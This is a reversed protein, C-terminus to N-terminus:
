VIRIARDEPRKSYRKWWSAVLSLQADRLTSREPDADIRRACVSRSAELVVVEEPQLAESWFRRGRAEPESVIFWARAPATAPDSLSLLLQNRRTMAPALWADRSWFRSPSGSLEAAIVDLDIVLDSPGAREAVYASKGSAPPGCVIILRALSPRLGLPHAADPRGSGRIEERQKRGDHHPKCVSQLNSEDWFLGEDGDHPRIHDVVTAWEQRGEEACMCCYPEAELQRARVGKRWRVSNYWKRARERARRRADFREGREAERAQRKRACSSCYREPPQVQVNCGDSLCRSMPAGIASAGRPAPRRDGAEAAGEAVPAARMESAAGGMYGCRDPDASLRYLTSM